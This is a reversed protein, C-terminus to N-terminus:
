KRLDCTDHGIYWIAGLWRQVQIYMGVVYLTYGNALAYGNPCPAKGWFKEALSIAYMDTTQPM